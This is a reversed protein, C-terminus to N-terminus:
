DEFSWADNSYDVSESEVSENYQTLLLDQIKDLDNDSLDDDELVGVWKGEELKHILLIDVGDKDSWADIVYEVTEGDIEKFFEVQSNALDTKPPKKM